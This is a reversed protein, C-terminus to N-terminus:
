AVSSPGLNLLRCRGSHAAFEAVGQAPWPSPQGSVVASAQLAGAARRELAATRPCACLLVMDEAAFHSAPVAAVTRRFIAAEVGGLDPPRNLRRLGPMLSAVTLEANSRHPM